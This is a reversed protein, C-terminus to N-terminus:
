KSQPTDAQQCSGPCMATHDRLNGLIDYNFADDPITELWALFLEGVGSTGKIADKVTKLDPCTFGHEAYKETAWSWTYSNVAVGNNKEASIGKDGRSSVAFGTDAFSYSNEISVNETIDGNIYGYLCYKMNQYGAGLYFSYYGTKDTTGNKVFSNVITSGDESASAVALSGLNGIGTSSWITSNSIVTCGMNYIAAEDAYSRNGANVTSNNIALRASTNGLHIANGRTSAPDAKSCNNDKMYCKNFMVAVKGGVEGAVAGYNTASNNVFRCNNFRIIGAGASGNAGFAGGVNSAANNSFVCNECDFIFTNDKTSSSLSTVIGAGVNAKGKTITLDKLYIHTNDSVSMVSRATEGSLITATAGAGKITASYPANAKPITLTSALAYTGAALNFTTGQLVYSSYTASASATFMEQMKALSMPNDSTLGDGGGDVSVYYNFHINDTQDDLKLIKGREISISNAKSLVAPLAGGKKDNFDALYRICLGTPWTGAITPVYVYGSALAESSLNPMNINAAKKYEVENITANTVDGFTGDVKFPLLGTNQKGDFASAQGRMYVGSLTYEVGDKTFKGGEPVALRIMGVANHFQLTMSEADTYSASYNVSKFTGAAKEPNVYVYFNATGDVVELVGSGAPYAAYYETPKDEIPIQTTFTAKAGAASATAVAEKAVGDAVYYVSIQDGAEWAVEGSEALTTKTMVSEFTITKYEGDYAEQNDTLEKTCALAMIAASILIFYKKM